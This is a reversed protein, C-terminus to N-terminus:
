LEDLTGYYVDEAAWLDEQAPTGQECKGVAENFVHRPQCQYHVTALQGRTVPGCVYYQTPDSPDPYSGPGLRECNPTGDLVNAQAPPAAAVLGALSLATAALRGAMPMPM